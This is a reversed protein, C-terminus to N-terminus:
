PASGGDPVHLKKLATALMSLFHLLLGLGILASAVYPLWRGSNRVVAFTSRQGQGDDEAFSSQYFAYGGTRLPRNMSIIADRAAVGAIIEVKSTFSRPIETGPHMTKQFDVLKVAFPLIPGQGGDPRLLVRASEGERLTLHYERSVSAIFFGGGILLLLGCHLLLLGARRWRYQLRFFGAALLNIFLLLVVSMLGPLPIFGFLLILWSAFVDRQAAYLGNEAQLATGAIVLLCLLLLLVVTLKLAALSRAFRIIQGARKEPM